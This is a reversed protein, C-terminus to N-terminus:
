LGHTTTEHCSYCTAQSGHEECLKWVRGNREAFSIWLRWLKSRNAVYIRATQTHKHTFPFFKQVCVCPRVSTALESPTKPSMEDMADEADSPVSPEDVSMREDDNEEKLEPFCKNHLIHYLQTFSSQSANDLVVYWSPIWSEWRRRLNRRKRTRRIWQPVYFNM